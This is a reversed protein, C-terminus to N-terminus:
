GVLPMAKDESVLSSMSTQSSAGHEQQPFCFSCEEPQATRTEEATQAKKTGLPKDLTKRKWELYLITFFPIMICLLGFTVLIAIVRSEELISSNYPPSMLPKGVSPTETPTNDPSTTQDPQRKPGCDVNSEATGPVIIQHDPQTCKRWKICSQHLRDNYTGPPCPECMRDKPQQGKTCEQVCFSCEENGCRFGQSCECITDRSASCRVKVRMVGICQTCRLCNKQSTDSIYTDNGCPACLANPDKGCNDIIHNGPICKKCCVNESDKQLKLDECKSELGQTVTLVSLALFFFLGHLLRM